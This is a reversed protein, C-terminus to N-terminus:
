EELCEYTKLSIGEGIFSGGIAGILAGITSGVGPFIVSGVGFGAAM